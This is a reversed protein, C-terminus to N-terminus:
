NSSRKLISIVLIKTRRKFDIPLSRNSAKNKPSYQCSDEYYFLFTNEGQNPVRLFAIRGM